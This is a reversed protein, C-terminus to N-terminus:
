PGVVCAGLLAAFLMIFIVMVYPLCSPGLSLLGVVGACLVAFLMIMVVMVFAQFVWLPLVFAAGRLDHYLCGHCLPLHPLIGM